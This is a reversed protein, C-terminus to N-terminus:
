NQIQEQSKKRDIRRKEPNNSPSAEGAKSNAIVQEPIEINV